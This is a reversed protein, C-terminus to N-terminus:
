TYKSAASCALMETVLTQEQRGTAKALINLHSLDLAYFRGVRITGQVREVHVGHLHRGPDSVDGGRRGRVRVPGRCATRQGADRGHVDARVRCTGHVGDCRPNQEARSRARVVRAPLDFGSLDAVVYERLVRVNAHLRFATNPYAQRLTHCLEETMWGHNQPVLQLHDTALHGFLAEEHIRSHALEVAAEHRLGPLRHRAVAPGPWHGECTWM